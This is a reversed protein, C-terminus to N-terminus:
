SNGYKVFEKHTLLRLVTLTFNEPSSTETSTIMYKQHTIQHSQVKLNFFILQERHNKCTIFDSYIDILKQMLACFIGVILKMINQSKEM